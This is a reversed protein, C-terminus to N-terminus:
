TMDSQSGMSQLVGPKGIRWEGGSNAWIWTWQTLGERGRSGVEGKAKLREWCWPRKWHTPQRQTLDCLSLGQSHTNWPAELCILYYYNESFPAKPLNRFETKELHHMECSGQNHTQQNEHSHNPFSFIAIHCTLIGCFQKSNNSLNLQKGEVFDRWIIALKQNIDLMRCVNIKVTTETNEKSPHLLPNESTEAKGNQFYDKKYNGRIERAVRLFKSPM